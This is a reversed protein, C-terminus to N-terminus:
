DRGLLRLASLDTLPEDISCTGFSTFWARAAARQQPTCRRGVSEPDRCALVSTITEEDAGDHAAAVAAMVNLFGHHEFGTGSGTHRVAHHLGATLKFPVGLRLACVLGETLRTEDPFADARTGGTRFKVRFGTQAVAQVAHHVGPGLAVEAYVTVTRPVAAAVAQLLAALGGPASGTVPLEVTSLRVRPHAQARAMGAALSEPGDVVVLSLDLVPGEGDLQGILEDWRRDPCVFTGVVPGYWAARHEWHRAVARAMPANGPPFLAADDFFGGFEKVWPM